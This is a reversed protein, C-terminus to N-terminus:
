AASAPLREVDDWGPLTNVLLYVGIITGVPFGVLSIMGIVISVM